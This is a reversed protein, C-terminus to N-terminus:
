IKSELVDIRKELGLFSKKSIREGSETKLDAVDYTLQDIKGSHENLIRSHENLTQKIDDYQEAIAQVHGQFNETLSGVYRATEKQADRTIRALREDSERSLRALYKEMDKRQSTLLREARVDSRANLFAIYKEMGKRQSALLREARADSKANLSAVFKEIRAEDFGIKQKKGAQKAMIKINGCVISQHRPASDSQENAISVASVFGETEHVESVPFSYNGRGREHGFGGRPM